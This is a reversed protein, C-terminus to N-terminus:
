PVEIVLNGATTRGTSSEQIVGRMVYKGPRADLVLSMTMGKDVYENYTADKLALDLQGQKGTLFAGNADLLAAIFTLQQTRRDNSRELTLKSLDVHAIVAISSTGERPAVEFKVPVAISTHGDLFERDIPREPPPKPASSPLPATYGPRAQISGHHGNTLRVKLPHYKGDQADGMSIGILYLTDPAAALERYGAALDNNNGFFRGGTGVALSVLGDDEALARSSQLRMEITAAQAATRASRIPPPKSIDGAPSYPALGQSELANIVISGRLADHSIEELEQELNGTLFGSSTLVIMKRGPFPTMAGVLTRVARLSTASNAKAEEWRGSAIGIVAMAQGGGRGPPMHTCDAYERVKVALLQDDLRNAILYAEYFNMSPCVSGADHLRSNPRLAEIQKILEATDSSFTQAKPWASTVIAVRDGTGLSDRVFKQAAKKAFIMDAFGINLDDFLLAIYRKPAEVAPAAEKTPSSGIASKASAATQVPTADRPDPTEVNFSVIERAHGSDSIQFDERRLGGVSHNGDRVVVPIEVLNVQTRITVPPPPVYPKSSARVEDQVPRQQGCLLVASAFLGPILNRRM